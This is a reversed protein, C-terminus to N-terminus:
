RIREVKRNWIVVYQIGSSLTTALVLLFAPFLLRSAPLVGAHTAVVLLLLGIQAFTNAKSLLM